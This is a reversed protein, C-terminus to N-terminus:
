GEKITLIAGTGDSTGAGRLDANIVVYGRECWWAPDPAEWTTLASFPLTATQRLARFQFAVSYGFIGKKPVNDKRYPHACLLVPFQDEGPPRHVNVRLSVGDRMVVAVNNDVHVSGPKPESIEVNPFIMRHLRGLAYVVGGDGHYKFSIVTM